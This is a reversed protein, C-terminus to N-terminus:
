KLKNEVVTSFLLNIQDANNGFLFELKSFLSLDFQNLIPTFMLYSFLMECSTNTFHFIHKKFYDMLGQM